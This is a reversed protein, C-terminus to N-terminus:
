AHTYLAVRRLVPAAEFQLRILRDVTDDGNLRRGAVWKTGRFRGDEARLIDVQVPSRAPADFRVSFGRGAIFYELNGVAAILGYGPRVGDKLPAEYEVAVTFGDLDFTESKDDTQLIGRVRETGLHPALVPLLEALLRYSEALGPAAVAYREAGWPHQREIGFPAFCLANHAAVAWFVNAAASLPSHEPIVLPNGQRVFDECIAKFHSSYIDPALADLSPAAIRWVDHMRAVPGGSPYVGPDRGGSGPAAEGYNLWANAFLPLHYEAKGAAAVREIYGAVHWAMFVEDAAPGFVESWSGSTRGGAADWAARLEPRLEARRSALAKMLGAPVPAAFAKEAPVGHERAAGLFGAENEVQVMVVTRARDHERLFRLLRAFARADARCCAESFASVARSNRGPEPQGRPFRELDQKVWAPTYTSEANKWTGFWLLILRLGHKRAGALLGRVLSFDYRGEEPELLEWYVPALVTNCNQAALLPWVTKMCALDSASSNQVEAGLAVFPRGDVILRARNGTRELRPLGAPAAASLKKARKM